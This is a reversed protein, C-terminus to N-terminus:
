DLREGDPCAGFLSKESTEKELLSRNRFSGVGMRFSHAPSSQAFRFIMLSAFNVSQVSLTTRRM